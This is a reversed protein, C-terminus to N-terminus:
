NRYVEKHGEWSYEGISYKIDLRPINLRDAIENQRKIIINEAYDKAEDLSKFSTGHCAISPSTTTLTYSINNHM